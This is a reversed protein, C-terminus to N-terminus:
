RCSGRAWRRIEAKRTSWPRRTRPDQDKLIICVSECRVPRAIALMTIVDKAPFVTNQLLRKISAATSIGALRELSLAGGDGSLASLWLGDLLGYFSTLVSM